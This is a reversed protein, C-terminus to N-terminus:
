VCRSTYLLCGYPLEPSVAYGKTDTILEPVPVATGNEYTVLHTYSVPQERTTIDHKMLFEIQEIRQDLKRIDERVVYPSRKPRKPLVGM